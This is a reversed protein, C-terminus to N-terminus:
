KSGHLQRKGTLNYICKNFSRMIQRTQWQTYLSLIDPINRTCYLWNTHTRCLCKSITNQVYYLYRLLNVCNRRAHFVHCNVIYWMHIVLYGLGCIAMAENCCLYYCWTLRLNSSNFTNLVGILGYNCTVTVNASQYVDLHKMPM